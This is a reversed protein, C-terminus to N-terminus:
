FICSAVIFDKLGPFKKITSIDQTNLMKFFQYKQSKRQLLSIKRRFLDM